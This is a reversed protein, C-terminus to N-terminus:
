LIYKEFTRTHGQGGQGIKNGQNWILVTPVRKSVTQIV